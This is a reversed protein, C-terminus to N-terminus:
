LGKQAVKLEAIDRRASEDVRYRLVNAGRDTLRPSRGELVVLGLKVLRGLVYDYSYRSLGMVQKITNPDMGEGVCALLRVCMRYNIRSSSMM